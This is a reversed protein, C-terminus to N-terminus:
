HGHPPCRRRVVAVSELLRRWNLVGAHEGLFLLRTHPLNIDRRSPLRVGRTAPPTQEVAFQAKETLGGEPGARPRVGNRQQNKPLTPSPPVHVHRLRGGTAEQM